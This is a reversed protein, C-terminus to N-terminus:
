LGGDEGPGGAGQAAGQSGRRLQGRLPLLPPALPRRPPQLRSRLDDCRRFTVGRTQGTYRARAPQTAPPPPRPAPLPPAPGEEQRLDQSRRPAAQLPLARLPHLLPLRRRASAPELREALRQRARQVLLGRAAGPAAAAGDRQRRDAGDRRLVGAAGRLLRALAQRHLLRPFVGVGRLGQDGRLLGQGSAHAQERLAATEARREGRRSPRQVGPGM